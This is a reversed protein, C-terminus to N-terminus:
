ANMYSVRMDAVQRQACGSLPLYDTREIELIDFECYPPIYRKILRTEVEFVVALGQSREYKYIKYNPVM